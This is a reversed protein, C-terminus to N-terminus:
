FEALVVERFNGVAAGTDLMAQAQDVGTTDVALAEGRVTKDLKDRSRRCFEETEVRAFAGDGYAGVGVEYDKIGVVFFDDGGLGMVHAHVIGHELAHLDFAYGFGDEGAAASYDVGAFEDAARAGALKEAALGIGADLM